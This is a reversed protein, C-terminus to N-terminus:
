DIRLLKRHCNEIRVVFCSIDRRLPRADINVISASEQIAFLEVARIVPLFRELEYHALSLSDLAPFVREFLDM